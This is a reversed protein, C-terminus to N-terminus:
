GQEKLLMMGAVKAALLFACAHLMSCAPWNASSLGAHPEPPGPGAPEPYQWPLSPLWHNRSPMLHGKMAPCDDERQGSEWKRM